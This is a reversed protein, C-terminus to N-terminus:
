RPTYGLDALLGQEIAFREAVTAGGHQVRVTEAISQLVSAPAYDPLAVVAAVPLPPPAAPLSDLWARLAPTHARYHEYSHAAIFQWPTWTAPMTPFRAPDHATDADLAQVAALLQAFAAQAAARVEALPRQQQERYLVLNRQYEPIQWLWDREAPQPGAQLVAATEQEYWAVHAMIDKPSEQRGPLPASMRAEGIEALLADWARRETQLTALVQAKTLKADM